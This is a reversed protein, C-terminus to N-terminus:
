YVGLTLSFFNAHNKNSNYACALRIMNVALYMYIYIVHQKRGANTAVNTRNEWM